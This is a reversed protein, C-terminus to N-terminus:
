QMRGLQYQVVVTEIDAVESCGAIVESTISLWTGIATELCSKPDSRWGRLKALPGEVSRRHTPPTSEYRLTLKGSPIRIVGTLPRDPLSVSGAVSTV